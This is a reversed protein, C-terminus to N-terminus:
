NNDESIPYKQMFSTLMMSLFFGSILTSFVAMFILGEPTFIFGLLKMTDDIQVQPTHSEEFGKRQVAMLEAIMTSDLFKAQIYYLVGVVFGAVLSLWFGISLGEKYAMFGDNKKKFEIYAYAIGLGQVFYILSGVAQHTQEQTWQVFLTYAVMIVGAFLGTKLGTLRQLTM